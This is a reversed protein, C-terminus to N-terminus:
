WQVEDHLIPESTDSLASAAQFADWPDAFWSANQKVEPVDDFEGQWWVAGFGVVGSPSLKPHNRIVWTGISTAKRM